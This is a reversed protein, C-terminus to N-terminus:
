EIGSDPCTASMTVSPGGGVMSVYETSPGAHLGWYHKKWQWGSYNGPSWWQGDHNHDQWEHAYGNGYLKGYLSPCLASDTDSDQGHSGLAPLAMSMAVIFAVLWALAQSASRRSSASDLSPTTIEM